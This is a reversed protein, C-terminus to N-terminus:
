VHTTVVGDQRFDLAHHEVKQKDGDLFRRHKQKADFFADFVRQPPNPYMRELVVTSHIVSPQSM